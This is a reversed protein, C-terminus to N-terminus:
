VIDESEIMITEDPFVVSVKHQKAEKQLLKALILAREKIFLPTTPFRPYNIIGVIVGPENGNSYIYNTKTFTVCFGVEDCYKQCVDWLLNEGLVEGTYTNKLGVYIQATFTTVKKM